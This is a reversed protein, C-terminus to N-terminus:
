RAADGASANSEAKPAGDLRLMFAKDGALSALQYDARTCGETSLLSRKGPIQSTDEVM